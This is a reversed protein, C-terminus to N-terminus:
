AEAHTPANYRRAGHRRQAAALWSLRRTVGNRREGGTPWSHYLHDNRGSSVRLRARCIGIDFQLPNRHFTEVSKNGREANAEGRARAGLGLPIHRGRIGRGVKVGFVDHLEDGVDILRGTALELDRHMRVRRQELAVFDLARHLGILRM